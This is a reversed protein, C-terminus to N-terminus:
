PHRRFRKFVRSIGEHSPLPNYLRELEADIKNSLAVEQFAALLPDRFEPRGAARLAIGDSTLQKFGEEISFQAQQAVM